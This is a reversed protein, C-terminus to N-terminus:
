VMCGFSRLNRIAANRHEPDVRIEITKGDFLLDSLDKAEKLGLGASNRIEKIIPIKNNGYNTVGTIRIHDNYEGTLMACFIQGKLDPDLTSSITDWLKMGEDSGYAETIVRLFDIGSSIVRQKYENPIM